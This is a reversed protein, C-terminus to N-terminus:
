ARTHTHTHTHTHVHAPSPCLSPSLSDWAAEMSDAGLGVRPEIGRVTLDHGSVFGLAPPKVLSGGLRGSLIEQQYASEEKKAVARRGESLVM